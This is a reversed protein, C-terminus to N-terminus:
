GGKSWKNPHKTVCVIQRHRSEEQKDFSNEQFQRFSRSVLTKTIFKPNKQTRKNSEVGKDQDSMSELIKLREKKNEIKSQSSRWACRIQVLANSRKIEKVLKKITNKTACNCNM